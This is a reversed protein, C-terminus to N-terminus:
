FPLSRQIYAPLVAEAREQYPPLEDATHESCYLKNEPFYELLLQVQGAVKRGAIEEIFELALDIGSTVGGSTWIKGSKVVREEVVNIEKKEKLESLARWYTTASQNHLLGAKQLLFMGTCISLVYQCQVSQKQIFAILHRNEVQKVRGRGGPVLLVDLQPSNAFTRHPQIAIQNDLQVMEDTESILYLHIPAKLVEKWTALVEWPGVVDIPQADQYLLMGITRM